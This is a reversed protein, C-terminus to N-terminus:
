VAPGPDAPPSLGIEQLVNIYKGADTIMVAYPALFAPTRSTSARFRETWYADPDVIYKLRDTSMQVGYSPVAACRALTFMHM